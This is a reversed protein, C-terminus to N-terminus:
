QNQVIITRPKKKLAKILILLFLVGVVWIWPPFQAVQETVTPPNKKFLPIIAAGLTLLGGIVWPNALLAFFGYNKQGYHTTNKSLSQLYGGLIGGLVLKLILNIQITIVLSVILGLIVGFKNQQIWKQITM